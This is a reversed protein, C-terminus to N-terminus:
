FANAEASMCAGYDRTRVVNVGASVMLAIDRELTSGSARTNRCASVGLEPYYDRRFVYPIHAERPHVRDVGASELV